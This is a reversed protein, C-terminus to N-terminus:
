PTGGAANAFAYWAPKPRGNLRFLGARDTWFDPGGPTDHDTFSFWFAHVIGLPGSNGRLLNFTATLRQAQQRLTSKLPSFKFRVGGTVWGFETVWIPTASDGHGNMISRAQRVWHLVGKPTRWYPHLGIADFYDTVGHIRYFANLYDRMSVTHKITHVPFFGATLVQAAPDGAKLGASSVKLLRAYGKPNPKGGFFGGLNPENWIEWTTIPHRPIQPNAAWFTGNTGYRAAYDTLLQQWAARARASHIPPDSPDRDLWKPVSYLDPLLTLGAQAAAGILRDTDRWDRQGPSPEVFGWILQIRFYGAGGQAARNLQAQTPSTVGDVGFFPNPAAAADTAALGAIAAAAILACAARAGRPM